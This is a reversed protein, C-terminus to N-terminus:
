QKRYRGLAAVLKMRQAHILDALERERAALAAYTALLRQTEIPPMDLELDELAARPVQPVSTGVAVAALRHQMAESNLVMALWAPELENATSRLIFLPMAAVAGEVDARALGAKPAGRPQFLVDGAAIRKASAPVADASTTVIRGSEVVGNAIDRAQIVRVRDGALANSAGLPVGLRFFAGLFVRCVDWLQRKRGEFVHSPQRM